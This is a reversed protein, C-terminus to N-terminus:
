PYANPTGVCIIYIRKINTIYVTQIVNKVVVHLYSVVTSYFMFWFNNHKTPTEYIHIICFMYGVYYM